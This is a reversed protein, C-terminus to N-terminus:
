SANSVIFIQSILFEFILYILVHIFKEFFMIRLQSTTATRNKYTYNATKRSLEYSDKGKLKYRWTEENEVDFLVEQKTFYKSGSPLFIVMTIFFHLILFTSVITKSQLVTNKYMPESQLSSKPNCRTLFINAM